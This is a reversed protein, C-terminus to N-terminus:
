RPSAACTTAAKRRAARSRAAPTTSSMRSWAAWCRACRRLLPRAGARPAPLPGAGTGAHRALARPQGIGARQDPGLRPRRRSRPLHLRDPRLSRGGASRAVAPRLGRHAPRRRLAQAPGRASGLDSQPRQVRSIEVRTGGGRAPEPRQPPFRRAAAMLRDLTEEGLHGFPPHGLDHALAIAEALDENLGLSRALTRAICSVEM